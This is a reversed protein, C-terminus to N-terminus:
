SPLVKNMAPKVLFAIAGQALAIKETDPLYQGTMM